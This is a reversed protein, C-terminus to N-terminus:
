QGSGAVALGPVSTPNLGPPETVWGLASRAALLGIISKADVLDGAAMLREIDALLVREIVIHEEEVGHAERAVERLGEALFCITEEDTFGPSNYFRAVEKMSSAERGVEEVLERGACLAPDEDAVDRKGAPLELLSAGVAGRYQRIMLVGQRDDELPVVAVAGPHRVVQREFAFGDPGVFTATVIQFFGADFREREGLHRFTGDPIEPSPM